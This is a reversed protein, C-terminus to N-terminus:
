PGITHRSGSNRLMCFEHLASVSYNDGLGSKVSMITTGLDYGAGQTVCAELHDVGPQVLGGLLHGLGRHLLVGVRHTEGQEGTRVHGKEVRTM